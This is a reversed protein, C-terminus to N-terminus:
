PLGLRSHSPSTEPNTRARIGVKFDRITQRSNFGQLAVTRIADHGDGLDIEQEEEDEGRLTSGSFVPLIRAEAM